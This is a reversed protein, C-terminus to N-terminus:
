LIGNVIFKILAVILLVRIIIIFIQEFPENYLFAIIKKM